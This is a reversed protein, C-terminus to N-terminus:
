SERKTEPVASEAGYEQINFQVWAYDRYHKIHSECVDAFSFPDLYSFHMRAVAANPCQAGETNFVTCQWRM